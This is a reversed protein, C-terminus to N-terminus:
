GICQSLWEYLDLDLCRFFIIKKHSNGMCADHKIGTSSHILESIKIQDISLETNM